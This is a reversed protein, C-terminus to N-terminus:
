KESKGEDNKKETDESDVDKNTEDVDAQAIYFAAVFQDLAFADVNEIVEKLTVKLKNAKLISTAIKANTIVYESNSLEDIDGQKINFEEDLIVWFATNVKYTRMEGTIDSEFTKLKTKFISM